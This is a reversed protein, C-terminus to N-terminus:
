DLTSSMGTNRPRGRPRQLEPPQGNKEVEETWAAVEEYVRQKAAAFSIDCLDNGSKM